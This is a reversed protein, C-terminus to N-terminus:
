AKPKRGIGGVILREILPLEGDAVRADRLQPRYTPFLELDFAADPRWQSLPVLGPDVMELGGFYRQIEELPRFWGSGLHDLFAQQLPDAEPGSRCFHTLFLYSGPPVADIYAAAIGAPDDNDPLHHLMGVLLVAVPESFDILRRVNPHNLVAEVDLLDVTVVDIRDNQALIARGHALVIPDKDIYAVRAQPDVRQAVQHINDQTPLGTGLDLFQRIGAEEALFRVGRRLAARNMVGLERSQPFVQRIREGAARDVAYNDKGNLANDYVRAISPKTVDIRPVAEEAV